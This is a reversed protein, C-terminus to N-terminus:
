ISHRFLIVWATVEKSRGSPFFHCVTTHLTIGAFGFAFNTTPHIKAVMESVVQLKRGYVDQSSFQQIPPSPARPVGVGGVLIKVEHKKKIFNPLDYEEGRKM